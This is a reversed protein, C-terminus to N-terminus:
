EIKYTNKFFLPVIFIIFTILFIIEIIVNGNIKTTDKTSSKDNKRKVAGESFLKTSLKIGKISTQTTTKEKIIINRGINPRKGLFCTFVIATVIADTTISNIINEAKPCNAKKSM